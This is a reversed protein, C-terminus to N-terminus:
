GPTALRVAGLRVLLGLEDAVMRIDSIRGGEFTLVDIVQREVLRGTPAVDGLPTALPGVHRGRQRFVIILKNAVDIREVLEISLDAFARQQAGAREVLTAATMPAGNVMVPDTYVARFRALAADGPPLPKAWLDLLSDLSFESASNSPSM